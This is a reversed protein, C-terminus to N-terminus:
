REIISRAVVSVAVAPEIRAGFGFLRNPTLRVLTRGVYGQALMYRACPGRDERAEMDIRQGSTATAHAEDWLSPTILDSCWIRRHTGADGFCERTHPYTASSDSAPSTDVTSLVRRKHEPKPKAPRSLDFLEDYAHGVFRVPRNPDPQTVPENAGSSAPAATEVPSGTLSPDEVGRRNPDPQTMPEDTDSSAPAPVPEVPNGTLGLDEVGDTLRVDLASMPLADKGDKTIPPANLYRVALAAIGTKLEAHCSENYSQRYAFAYPQDAYRQGSPSVAQDVDSGSPQVADRRILFREALYSDIDGDPTPDAAHENDAETPYDLSQLRNIV